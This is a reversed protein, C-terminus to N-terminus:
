MRTKIKKIRKLYPTLFSCRFSLVIDGNIRQVEVEKCTTTNLGQRWNGYIFSLDESHEPCRIIPPTRDLAVGRRQTPMMTGNASKTFVIEDYFHSNMTGCLVLNNDEISKSIDLTDLESIKVNNPNYFVDASLFSGGRLTDGDPANIDCFTFMSVKTAKYIYNREYLEGNEGLGPVEIPILYFSDLMWEGQYEYCPLRQNTSSNLINYKALLPIIEEIQDSELNRIRCDEIQKEKQSIEKKLTEVKTELGGLSRMLTYSIPATILLLVVLLISVKQYLSRKSGEKNLDQELQIKNKDTSDILRNAAGIAKYYAEIGINGSMNILKSVHGESYFLENAVVVNNASEFKKEAWNFPGYKKELIEIFNFRLLGSIADEYDKSKGEGKVLNMFYNVDKGDFRLLEFIDGNSKQKFVLKDKDFEGFKEEYSKIFRNFSEKQM